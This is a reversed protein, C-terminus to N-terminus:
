TGFSQLGFEHITAAHLTIGAAKADFYHKIGSSEACTDIYINYALGYAKINM